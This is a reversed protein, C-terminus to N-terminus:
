KQCKNREAKRTMGDTKNLHYYIVSSINVIIPFQFSSINKLKILVNSHQSDTKLNGTRSKLNTKVGIIMIRTKKKWKM